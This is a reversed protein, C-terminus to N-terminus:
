LSKFWTQFFDGVLPSPKEEQAAAGVLSLVWLVISFVWIVWGLFPVIISLVLLLNLGLLQRIYFSAFEDKNENQNALLAIVWGIITAHAVLAKTKADM